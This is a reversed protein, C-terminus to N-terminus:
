RGGALVPPALEPTRGIAASQSFSSSTSPIDWLINYFSSLGVPFMVELADPYFVCGRWLVWAFTM